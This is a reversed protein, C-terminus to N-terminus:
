RSDVEPALVHTPKKWWINRCLTIQVARPNAASYLCPVQGIIHRWLCPLVQLPPAHDKACLTNARVVQFAILYRQWVSYRNCRKRGGVVTFNGGCSQLGVASLSHVLLGFLEVKSNKPKCPVPRKGRAGEDAITRDCASSAARQFDQVRLLKCTTSLTCFISECSASM